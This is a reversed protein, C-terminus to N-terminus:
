NSTTTELQRDCNEFLTATISTKAMKIIGDLQAIEAMKNLHESTTVQTLLCEVEVDNNHIYTYHGTDDVVHHDADYGWHMGFKCVGVSIVNTGKAGDHIYALAIAQTSIFLQTINKSETALRLTESLDDSLAQFFISINMKKNIINKKCRQAAVGETLIKGTSLGDAVRAKFWAEGNKSLMDGMTTYVDQLTGFLGDLGAVTALRKNGVTTIMGQILTLFQVAVTNNAESLTVQASMKVLLTEGIRVIEAKSEELIRKYVSSAM